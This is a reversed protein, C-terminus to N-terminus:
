VGRTRTDKDGIGLQGKLVPDSDGEGLHVIVDVPLLGVRSLSCTPTWKFKLLVERAARHSISKLSCLPLSIM